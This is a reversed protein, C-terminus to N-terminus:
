NEQVKTSEVQTVTSRIRWANGVRIWTDLYRHTHLLKVKKNTVPDVSETLSTEDSIVNAMSGLVECSAMKTVYATAPKKAAKRKRLSAEYDKRQIVQGSYTKLTYDPALVGLVADVDNTLTSKAWRQYQKEIDDRVTGHAISAFLCFGAIIGSRAQKLQLHM